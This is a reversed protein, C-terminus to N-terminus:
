NIAVDYGARALRTAITKGIGSNAGTILATRRTTM